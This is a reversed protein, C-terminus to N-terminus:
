AEPLGVRKRMENLVRLEEEAMHERDSPWWQGRHKPQNVFYSDRLVANLVQQLCSEGAARTPAFDGPLTAFASGFSLAAFLSHTARFLQQIEDLSVRTPDNLICGSESDYLRHAIKSNRLTEIRDRVAKTAKDFPSQRITRRFLERLEVSHWGNSNFLRDKLAPLTLVDRGKDGVLGHLILCAMEFFNEAVLHWFEMGQPAYLYSFPFGQLEKLSLITGHLRTVRWWLDQHLESYQQALDPSFLETPQLRSLEPCSWAQWDELRLADDPDKPM